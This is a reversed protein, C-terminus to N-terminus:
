VHARGIQFWIRDWWSLIFSTVGITLVLYGTAPWHPLIENYSAIANFLFLTPFSFSLIFLANRDHKSFANRFQVFLVTWFLVFFLPSIYGAQAGLCRGLLAASFHPPEKGFGHQLQFGFSAFSNEMNWIVVPLFIVFAILLALYPEKRAFWQRQDRALLMFVMASPVLLVANYKSLMGLGLIAGLAYWYRPSGGQTIRYFLYIFAMWCFALPADPITMVAGLFSFVPIVNLLAASWFAIRGGYLARALLFVLWSTLLFLLVAPVRVGFETNGFILTFFKIIYGIAPPHDFYSLDLYRSYTWYHAEDGSLGIRGVVMLRLLSAVASLVWFWVTYKKENANLNMGKVYTETAM